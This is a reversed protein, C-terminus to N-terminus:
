SNEIEELAMKLYKEAIEDKENPFLEKAKLFADRAKVHRGKKFFCIGLRNCVAFTPYKEIAEQCEKVCDDLDQTDYRALTKIDYLSELIKKVEDKDKQDEINLNKLENIEKECLEIADNLKNEEILKKAEKLKEQNESYKSFANMNVKGKAYQEKFKNLDDDSSNKLKDVFSRIVSPDMDVGFAKMTNKIQDDSMNSFMGLMQKLQAPDLKSPDVNGMGPFANM